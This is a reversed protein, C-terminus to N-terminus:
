YYLLSRALICVLLTATLIYPLGEPVDQFTDHVTHLTSSLLSIVLLNPQAAFCIEREDRTSIGLGVFSLM